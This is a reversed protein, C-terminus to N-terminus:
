LEFSNKEIKRGINTNKEYKQLKFCPYLKFFRSM